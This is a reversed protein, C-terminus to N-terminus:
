EFGHLSGTGIAPISLSSLQNKEAARLARKMAEKWAKESSNAEHPVQLHVIKLPLRGGSTVVVGESAMKDKCICMEFM